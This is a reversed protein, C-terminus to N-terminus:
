RTPEVPVAHKCLICLQADDFSEWGDPLPYFRRRGVPAQFALWGDAMEEKLHAGPASAGDVSLTPRVEWVQWRVGQADVFSRVDM